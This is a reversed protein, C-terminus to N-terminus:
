IKFFKNSAAFVRLCQVKHKGSIIYSPMKYKNLKTALKIPIERAGVRERERQNPKERIINSAEGFAFGIVM